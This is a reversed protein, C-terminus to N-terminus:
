EPNNQGQPSKKKHCVLIDEFCVRYNFFFRMVEEKPKICHLVIRECQWQRCHWIFAFGTSIHGLATCNNPKFCECLCCLCFSVLITGCETICTHEMKKRQQSHWTPLNHTHYVLLCFCRKTLLLPLIINYTMLIFYIFSYIFGLQKWLWHSIMMNFM